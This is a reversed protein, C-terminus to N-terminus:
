VLELLTPISGDLTYNKTGIKENLVMSPIIKIHDMNWDYQGDDDKFSELGCNLEPGCGAVACNCDLRVGKEIRIGSGLTFLYQTGSEYATDLGLGTFIDEYQGSRGINVDEYNQYGSVCPYGDAFDQYIGVTDDCQSHSNFIPESTQILGSTVSGDYDCVQEFQIAPKSNADAMYVKHIIDMAEFAADTGITHDGLGSIDPFLGNGIVTFPMDDYVLAENGDDNKIISYNITNIHKKDCYSNHTDDWPKARWVPHNFDDQLMNIRPFRCGPLHLTAKQIDLSPRELALQYRQDLYEDSVRNSYHITESSPTGYDRYLDSLMSQSKDSTLYISQVGELHHKISSQSAKGTFRVKQSKSKNSPKVTGPTAVRSFLPYTWYIGSGLGLECPKNRIIEDNIITPRYLLEDDVRGKYYYDSGNLKFHSNRIETHQRTFSGYQSSNHNTTLKPGTTQFNGSNIDDNPSLSSGDTPGSIHQNANPSPSYETGLLEVRTGSVRDQGRYTYKAESRNPAVNPIALRSIATSETTRNDLAAWAAFEEPMNMLKRLRLAIDSEKYGLSEPDLKTCDNIDGPVNPIIAPPVQLRGIDTDYRQDYDGGISIDTVEYTETLDVRTLISNLQSHYAKLRRLFEIAFELTVPDAFEDLTKTLVQIDFYNSQLGDLDPPVITELKNYTAFIFIRENDEKDYYGNLGYVLSNTERDIRTNQITLPPRKGFLIENTADGLKGSLLIQSYGNLELGNVANHIATTNIFGDNDIICGAEEGYEGPRELINNTITQLSYWAESGYTVNYADVTVNGGDQLSKFDDLGFIVQSRFLLPTNFSGFNDIIANALCIDIQFKSAISIEQDTYPNPLKEGPRILRKGDKSWWLNTILIEFGFLRFINIISRRSGKLNQFEVTRRLVARRLQDLSKPFFPLDWGLLSLLYPIAEAPADFVWNIRELLNQEDMVDQLIDTFPRYLAIITDKSASSDTLYPSPTHRYFENLVEGPHQIAFRFLTLSTNNIDICLFQSKGEKSTVRNYYQAEYVINYNGPPLSETDIVIDSLDYYDAGSIYEITDIVGSTTTYNIIDGNQAEELSIINGDRTITTGSIDIQHESIETSSLSISYLERDPFRMGIHDHGAVLASQPVNEVYIRVNFTTSNPLTNSTNRRHPVVMIIPLGFPRWATRNNNVPFLYFAPQNADVNLIPM